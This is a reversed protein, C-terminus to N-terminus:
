LPVNHLGHEYSELDDKQWSEYAIYSLEEHINDESKARKGCYRHVKVNNLRFFNRFLKVILQQFHRRARGNARM